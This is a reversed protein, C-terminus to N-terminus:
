NLFLQILRGLCMDEDDDDLPQKVPSFVLYVLKFIKTKENVRLHM